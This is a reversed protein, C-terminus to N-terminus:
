RKEKAPQDPWGREATLEMAREIPIRAIGGQRDIWRYGHLKQEAAARITAGDATPTVELPPTRSAPQPGQIATREIPQEPEFAHIMAAVLLGSLALGAFLGLCAYVIGRPQADRREFAPEPQGAATAPTGAGNM